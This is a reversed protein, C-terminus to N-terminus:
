TVRLKSAGEIVHRNTLVVGPAVFFGSGTGLNTEITVVAPTLAKVIAETTMPAGSPLSAPVAPTQADGSTPQAAKEQLDDNTYVKPPQTATRRDDAAQKAVGALSQASLASGFPQTGATLLLVLALVLRKM